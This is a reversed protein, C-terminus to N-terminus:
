FPYSFSRSHRPVRERCHRTFCRLCSALSPARMRARVVYAGSRLPFEVLLLFWSSAPAPVGGDGADAGNEITQCVLERERSKLFPRGGIRVGASRHDESVRRRCCSRHRVSAAPWSHPPRHLCQAWMPEREGALYTGCSTLLLPRDWSELAWFKRM